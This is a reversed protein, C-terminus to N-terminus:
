RTIKIKREAFADRAHPIDIKAQLKWADHSAIAIKEKQLKIEFSFVKKEGPLIKIDNALNVESIIDEGSDGKVEYQAEITADNGFHFWRGGMDPAIIMDMGYHETSWKRLLRLYLGRIEQTVKGGVLHIEGNVSDGRHYEDKPIHIALKVGGFGAKARLDELVM